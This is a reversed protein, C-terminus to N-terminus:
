WQMGATDEEEDFIAVHPRGDETVWARFMGGTNHCSAIVGHRDIAIVGGRAETGLTELSDRFAHQCVSLLSPPAAPSALSQFRWMDSIEKALASRIFFEGLGTSSVAASRDDAWSGCGILPTDGVRGAHKGTTGGTSTGASLSSYQDFAVAGVTGYKSEAPAVSLPAATSHAHKAAAHAALTTSRIATSGTLEPLGHAVRWENLAIWRELVDFHDNDVEKLGYESGVRRGLMEAGEAILMCHTTREMVARALGIPHDIRRVAAVAGCLRNSGQMISADLEHEGETSFVSGVGANYLPHSELAAVVAVTADLSTSGSQLLTYGIHLSDLMSSIYHPRHISHSINGSGGHLILSFRGTAPQRNATTLVPAPAASAPMDAM